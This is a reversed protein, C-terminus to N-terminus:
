RPSASRSVWPGYSLRYKAARGALRKTFYGRARVKVARGGSREITVVGPAPVHGWIVVGRGTKKVYIPLRYSGLAPKPKGNAFVLGSQFAWVPQEDSWLYQSFSRL